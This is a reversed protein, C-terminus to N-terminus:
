ENNNYRTFSLKCSYKYVLLSSFINLKKKNKANNGQYYMCFIYFAVKKLFLLFDIINSPGICVYRHTQQKNLLRLLIINLNTCM